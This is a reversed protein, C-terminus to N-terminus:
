KLEQIRINRWRVELGPTGHAHVQLGIFGEINDMYRGEDYLLDAVMNGNIWTQIRRGVALIRYQNWADNLFYSHM